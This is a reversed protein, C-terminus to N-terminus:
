HEDCVSKIAATADAIYSEDLDFGIFRGVGQRIAGVAANGIGVFPDIVTYDQKPKGACHILLANEVLKPPFTAPHPRQKSRNQITKYPIYWVNGRCRKDMGGARKWRKTNTKDVYPVGLALRDIPVNGTKTLHFIFEHCDNVYRKSNIPKFHGVSVVGGDKMDLSVSKIWHFTNQLVFHKMALLIIEHPLVPKRPCSGLNLFLSGNPALVRSVAALWDGTWSMYIEHRQSDNYKRYKIGLNYPPSTVVVDASGADLSALGTLCNEARLIVETM